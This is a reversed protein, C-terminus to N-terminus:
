GGKEMDSRDAGSPQWLQIGHGEPDELSAFTGNPYTVPDVEVPIGANRLQAVMADLDAVRFNIAWSHLRSGFHPSDTPMAAFVTSGAKQQWSAEDYSAPPPDVGLHDSYWRALGDPDSARFFLGGIGDVRQM